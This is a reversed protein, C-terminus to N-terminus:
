PRLGVEDIKKYFIEDFKVCPEAQALLEEREMEVM